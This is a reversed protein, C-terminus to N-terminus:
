LGLALHCRAKAPSNFRRGQLVHFCHYWCPIGGSHKGNLFISGFDAVLLSVLLLQGSPENTLEREKLVPVVVGPSTTALILAVIWIDNIFGLSRLWNAAILALGLTFSFRTVTLFLHSSM